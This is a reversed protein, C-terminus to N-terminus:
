SIHQSKGALFGARMGICLNMSYLEEAKKLTAVEASHHFHGRHLLLAVLDGKHLGLCMLKLKHICVFHQGSVQELENSEKLLTLRGVFCSANKLLDGLIFLLWFFLLCSM